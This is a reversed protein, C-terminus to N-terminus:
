WNPFMKYIPKEFTAAKNCIYDIVNKSCPVFSIRKLHHWWLSFNHQSTWCRKRQVRDYTGQHANQICSEYPLQTSSIHFNLKPSPKGIQGGSWHRTSEPVRDSTAAKALGDGYPKRWKEFIADVSHEPSACEVADYRRWWFAPFEFQSPQSM